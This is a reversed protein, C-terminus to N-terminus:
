KPDLREFLEDLWEETREVMRIQRKAPPTTSTHFLDAPPIVIDPQLTEITSAFERVTLQRFGTSTFISLHKTGNGVPTTVAPFRRAGLILAREQSFATFKHLNRSGGPKM